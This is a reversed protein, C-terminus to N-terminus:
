EEERMLQKRRKKEEELAMRNERDQHAMQMTVDFEVISRMIGKVGKPGIRNATLHLSTLGTGGAIVEALALAGAERMANGSIYLTSLAPNRAVALTALSTCGEDGINNFGLDLVTLSPHHKYKRQQQTQGHGDNDDQDEKSSEMM